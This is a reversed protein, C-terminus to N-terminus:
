LDALFDGGGEAYALRMEVGKRPDLVGRGGSGRTKDGVEELFGEPVGVERYRRCWDGQDRGVAHRDDHDRRGLQKIAAARRERRVPRARRGEGKLIM